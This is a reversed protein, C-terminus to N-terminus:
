ECKETIIVDGDDDFSVDCEGTDIWGTPGLFSLVKYWKAHRFSMDALLDRKTLAKDSRNFRIHEEDQEIRRPSSLFQARYGWKDKFSYYILATDRAQIFAPSCLLEYKKM